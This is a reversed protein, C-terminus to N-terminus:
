HTAQVNEEEPMEIITASIPKYDIIFLCGCKNCEFDHRCDTAFIFTCDMKGTEEVDNSDCHPCNM